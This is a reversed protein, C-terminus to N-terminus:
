ALQYSLVCTSTAKRVRQEMKSAFYLYKGVVLDCTCVHCMSRRGERTRDRRVLWYCLVGVSM